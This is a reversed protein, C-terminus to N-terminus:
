FQNASVEISPLITTKRGKNDLEIASFHASFYPVKLM